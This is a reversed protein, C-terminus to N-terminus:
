KQNTTTSEPLNSKKSEMLPLSAHGTGIAMFLGWLVTSSLLGMQLLFIASINIAGYGGWFWLSEKLRKELRRASELLDFIHHLNDDMLIIQATETAVAAASNLTVSVNARQMAMTDNIGDGIFCVCRGSAQLRSVLDAKEEPLMDHFYDDMGLEYAMHRTPAATDGSVIFMKKIGSDRLQRISSFLEPRSKPQIEIAGQLSQGVAVSVLTNGLQGSKNLINQFPEPLAIDAEILLRSNGARVTKGNVKATIGRGPHYEHEDAEPLSLNRNEAERLIAQAIPHNQRDEIAAAFSLLENESLTGLCHIKAISLDSSTLTGTKDFLVTDVKTLAELSRGDKIVINQDVMSSLHNATLLSCTIELSNLPASYLISVASSLGLMPMSLVSVTMIPLVTDNAIQEGKLQLQSKYDASKQLIDVLRAVSTESGTKFVEIEIRGSIVLTSAFVEDGISKESLMSEGTLTHQDIIASGSVIYGDVSIVEGARVVIIEGAQVADLSVETEIASEKKIWVTESVQSINSIKRRSLDKRRIVTNYSTHYIFVQLSCAFYGGLGLCAVSLIANRVDNNAKRQKLVADEARRLIPLSSYIAFGLSIPIAVPTVFGALAFGTAVAATKSHHTHLALDKKLQKSEAESPNEFSKEVTVEVQKTKLEKSSKRNEILRVSAYGGVLLLINLLIM